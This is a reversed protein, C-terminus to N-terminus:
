IDCFHKCRGAPQPEISRHLPRPHRPPYRNRRARLEGPAHRRRGLLHGCNRLGIGGAVSGSRVRGPRLGAGRLHCGDIQELRDPDAGQREAADRADPSAPGAAPLGAIPTAHLTMRGFMHGTIWLTDVDVAVEVGHADRLSPPLRVPRWAADAQGHIWVTDGNPERSSGLGYDQNPGLLRDLLPAQTVVLYAQDVALLATVRGPVPSSRWGGDIWSVLHSEGFEGGRQLVMAVSDRQALGGWGRAWTADLWPWLGPFEDLVLDEDPPCDHPPPCAFRQVRQEFPGLGLTPDVFTVVYLADTTALVFFPPRDFSPGVRTAGEPRLAHLTYPPGEKGSCADTSVLLGGDWTHGVLEVTCADAFRHADRWAGRNWHQFRIRTEAIDVEDEVEFEVVKWLAEPWRGIFERWRPEHREAGLTGLNPVRDLRGDGLVHPVRQSTTAGHDPLYLLLGRELTAQDAMKEVELALRWEPEWAQLFRLPVRRVRSPEPKPAPAVPPTPM